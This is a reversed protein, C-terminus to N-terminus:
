ILLMPWEFWVVGDDSAAAGDGSATYTVYHSQIRNASYSFVNTHPKTDLTFDIDFGDVTEARTQATAIKEDFM